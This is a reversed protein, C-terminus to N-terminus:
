AEGESSRERTWPGGVFQRVAHWGPPLDAVEYLSSDREVVRSLAVLVANATEVPGGSLFQWGDDEADHSVVLVAEPGQM